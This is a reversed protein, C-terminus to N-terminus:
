SGSRQAVKPKLRFGILAIVVGLALLFGGAVAVNIADQLGPLSCDFSVRAGGEWQYFWMELRHTGRTLQLEASMTQYAQLQWNNILAMGDVYLQSGDDSGIQFWVTSDEALDITTTAMFGVHESRGQFSVTTMDFRLPATSTGLVQGYGGLQDNMEYWTISWDHMGIAGELQSKTLIGYGLLVAGLALLAVGAVFVNKRM